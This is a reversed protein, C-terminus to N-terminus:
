VSVFSWNISTGPFPVPDQVLFGKAQDGGSSSEAIGFLVIVLFTLIATLVSSLSSNSNM